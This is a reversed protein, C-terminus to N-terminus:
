GSKRLEASFKAYTISIKHHCTSLDASCSPRGQTGGFAAISKLELASDEGLRIRGALEAAAGSTMAADSPM